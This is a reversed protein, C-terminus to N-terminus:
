AAISGADVLYYNHVFELSKDGHSVNYPNFSSAIMQRRKESKESPIDFNAQENGFRRVATYAPRIGYTVEEVYGMTGTRVVAM